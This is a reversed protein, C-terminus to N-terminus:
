LLDGAACGAHNASFDVTVTTALLQRDRGRRRNQASPSSIAGSGSDVPCRVRGNISSALRKPLYTTKPGRRNTVGQVSGIFM